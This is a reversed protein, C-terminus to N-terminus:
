LGRVDQGLSPVFHAGPHGLDHELGVTLSHLGLLGQCPHHLIAALPAFVLSAKLVVVAFIFLLHVLRDVKQLRSAGPALGDIHLLDLLARDQV